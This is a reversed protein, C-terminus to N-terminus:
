YGFEKLAKPDNRWDKTVKVWIDLEVERNLVDQIAKLSRVRLNHLAKGGKGILIGKQGDREVHISARVLDLEGPRDMFQEIEVATAYPLEDHYLSFIAERIAEAAFYREWRDTLQGPPFFPEQEPLRRALDELLGTVGSGTKASVRHTSVFAHKGKLEAEAAAVREPPFADVKNMALVVPIQVRSVAVLLNEMQPLPMGPDVLLCAVDSDEKLARQAQAQMSKQLGYHPVLWGPTDLFCAQYDKKDVIGILRDRTTQPLPSVISLRSGLIRNLLTSKGANPLGLIAIFGSRFGPKVPETM